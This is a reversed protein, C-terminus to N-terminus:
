KRNKNKDLLVLHERRYAHLGDTVYLLVGCWICSFTLFQAVGFAEGYAFVGLLFMCTPSLYQMIGVTVLRLRRVAFSFCLLPLATVAGTGVLLLNQSMGAHGLAGIGHAERWLLYAGAPITALLTEFFLGPLAETHVVKRVLGYIGFTFALALAFLPLRGVHILSVGVGLTALLIALGQLRNLKDRFFIYGLLVNVLPNIYYGLSAEVVHNANVAWVYIFWNLSVLASSLLLLAINRKERMLAGVAGWRGQLTLVLASFAMCWVIRHCILELPPVTKLAKWYIPLIGWGLFAGAAGLLGSSTRSFHM